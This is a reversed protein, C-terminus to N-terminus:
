GQVGSKLDTACAAVSAGLREGDGGVFDERVSPADSAPDHDDGHVAPQLREQRLQAGEYSGGPELHHRRRRGILDSQRSGHVAAVAVLVVLLQRAAPDGNAPESVARAVTLPREVGRRVSRDLVSQLGVQALDYTDACRDSVPPGRPDAERSPDQRDEGAYPSPHDRDTTVVARPVDHTRYEPSLGRRSSDSVSSGERAEEVDCLELPETGMAGCRIPGCRSALWGANAM